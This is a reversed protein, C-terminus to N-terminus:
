KKVSVNRAIKRVFQMKQKQSTEVTCQINNVDLLRIIAM